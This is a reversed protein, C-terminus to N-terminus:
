FQIHKAKPNKSKRYLIVVHGIIKVVEASTKEALVDATSKADLSSNNLIRIKAIENKDLMKEIQNISEDSVGDKGIQMNAELKGAISILLAREKTTIM